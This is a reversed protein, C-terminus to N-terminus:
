VKVRELVKGWFQEQLPVGLRWPSRKNQSQWALWLLLQGRSCRPASLHRVGVDRAHHFEM